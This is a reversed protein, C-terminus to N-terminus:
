YYYGRFIDESAQEFTCAQSNLFQLPHVKEEYLPCEPILMRLHENCLLWQDLEVRPPTLIGMSYPTLAACQYLLCRNWVPRPVMGM